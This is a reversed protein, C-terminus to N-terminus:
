SVIRRNPIAPITQNDAASKPGFVPLEGKWTTAVDTLLPYSLSPGRPTFEGAESGM